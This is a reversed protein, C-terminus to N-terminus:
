AVKAFFLNGLDATRVAAATDRLSVQGAVLVVAEDAIELAAAVNQEVLLVTVGAARVRVIAEMTQGVFKPSLGASPEDLLLVEPNALLASAFALMQRQGGSLDGARTKLRAALEPFLALVRERQEPGVGARGRLFETALKLNEGITLSPFVNQEQPVYAMGAAVRKAPTESTVDTGTVSVRGQRIDLLGALTKVFSSKGSGNPGIVALITEPNQNLTIGRVIDDGRGYGARLESVSLAPVVSM